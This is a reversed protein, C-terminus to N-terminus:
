REAGGGAPAHLEFGGREIESTRGRGELLKDVPEFREAVPEHEKFGVRQGPHAPGHVSEVLFNAEVGITRVRAKRVIGGPDVGERTPEGFQDPRVVAPELDGEVLKVPEQPDGLLVAMSAVPLGEALVAPKHGVGDAPM